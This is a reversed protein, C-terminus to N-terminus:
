VSNLLNHLWNENVILLGKKLQSIELAQIYETTTASFWILELVTFHDDATILFTFYFCPIISKKCTTADPTSSRVSLRSPTHAADKGVVM